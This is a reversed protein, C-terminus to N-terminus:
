EYYLGDIRFSRRSINKLSKVQLSSNAEPFPLAAFRILYFLKEGARIHKRMAYVNLFLTQSSVAKSHPIQMMTLYQMTGELLLSRSAKCLLAHVITFDPSRITRGLIRFIRSAARCRSLLVAGKMVTQFITVSMLVDHFFCPSLRRGTQLKQKDSITKTYQNLPSISPPYKTRRICSRAEGM